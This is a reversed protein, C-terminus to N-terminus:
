RSPTLSQETFELTLLDGQEPQARVTFRIASARPPISFVGVYSIGGDEVVPKMEIDLDQGTLVELQAHVRARISKTAGAKHSVVVVNLLAREPGAEIGHRQLVAGPLAETRVVNARLM